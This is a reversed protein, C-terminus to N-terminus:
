SFLGAFAEILYDYGTVPLPERVEWGPRLAPEFLRGELDAVV